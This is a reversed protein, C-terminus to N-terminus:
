DFALYNEWTSRGPNCGACLRSAIYDTGALRCQAHANKLSTTHGTASAQCLFEM